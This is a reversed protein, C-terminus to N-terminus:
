SQRIIPTLVIKKGLWVRSSPYDDKEFQMEKPSEHWLFNNRGCSRRWRWQRMQKWLFFIWILNRRMKQTWNLNQQNFVGHHNNKIDVLYTYRTQYYFFNYQRWWSCSSSFYHIFGSVQSPDFVWIKWGWFWPPKMKELFIDQLILGNNNCLRSLSVDRGRKKSLLYLQLSM